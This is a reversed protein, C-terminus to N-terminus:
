VEPQLNKKETHVEQSVKDIDIGKSIPIPIVASINHLTGLIDGRKLVIKRNSPNTVYIYVHPSRRKRNTKYSEQFELTEDVQSVILPQFIVSM